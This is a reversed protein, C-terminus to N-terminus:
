EREVRDKELRTLDRIADTIAVLHENSIGSGKLIVIARERNKVETASHEDNSVVVPTGDTDEITAALGALLVNWMARNNHERLKLLYGEDSENCYEMMRDEKLNMAKGEKSDAAVFKVASPATPVEKALNEMVDVVGISKIKM